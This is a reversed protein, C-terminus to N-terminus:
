SDGTHDTTHGDDGNDGDDGHDGDEDVRTTPTKNVAEQALVLAVAECYATWHRCSRRYWFGPCSCARADTRYKPAGVDNM